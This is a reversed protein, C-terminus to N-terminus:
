IRSNTNRKVATDKQKFLRASFKFQFDLKFDTKNYSQELLIHKYTVFLKEGIVFRFIAVFFHCVETMKLFSKHPRKPIKIFLSLHFFYQEEPNQWFQPTVGALSLEGYILGELVGLLSLNRGSIGLSEM